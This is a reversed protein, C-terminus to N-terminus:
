CPEAMLARGMVNDVVRNPPPLVARETSKPPMEIPRKHLPDRLNSGRVPM